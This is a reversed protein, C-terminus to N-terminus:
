IVNCTKNLLYLSFVPLFKRRNIKIRSSFCYNIRSIYNMFRKLFNESLQILSPDSQVISDISASYTLIGISLGNDPLVYMSNGVLNIFEFESLNM